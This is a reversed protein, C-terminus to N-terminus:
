DKSMKACLFTLGMYDRVKQISEFGPLMSEFGFYYVAPCYFPVVIGGQMCYVISKTFPFQRNLFMIFPDIEKTARHFQFYQGQIDFLQGLTICYFQFGRYKPTRSTIAVSPVFLSANMMSGNLDSIPLLQLVEEVPLGGRGNTRLLSTM